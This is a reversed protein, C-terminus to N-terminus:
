TFGPLTNVENVFIEDGKVFFDVRALGECGLLRFVEVALEQIRHAQQPPLEAPIACLPATLTSTNQRIRISLRAQEGARDRSNPHALRAEPNKWSLVNLRARETLGLEILLKHDYRFASNRM